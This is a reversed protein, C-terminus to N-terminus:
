KASITIISTRDMESSCQLGRFARFTPVRSSYIRFSALTPEKTLLLICGRAKVREIGGEFSRMSIVFDDVEVHKRQELNKEAHTVQRGELREFDALPIVGYKQTASLHEDNKHAREKSEVFLRNSPFVGWQAPIQELWKEGSDRLKVSTDLGKTVAHTILARSEENLLEIFRTKKAILVDIAKTERDLFEAITCQEEPPPVPVRIDGVINTNLNLQTGLKGLGGFPAGSLLIYYLYEPNLLLRDFTM